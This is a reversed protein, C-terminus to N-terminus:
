SADDSPEFLGTPHGGNSVREPQESWELQADVAGTPTTLTTLYKGRLSQGTQAGVPEALSWFTVRPFGSSDVTARIKRRARKLADQSHGVKAGLRKIDASAATGGQSSLYDELWAGAESVATRADPDDSARRMAEDISDTLEDGV